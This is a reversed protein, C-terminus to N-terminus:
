VIFVKIYLLIIKILLIFIIKINNASNFQIVDKKSIKKKIPLNIRALVLM